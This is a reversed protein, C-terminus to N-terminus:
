PLFVVKLTEGNIAKEVGEEFKSLPLRDTVIKEIQIKGAAILDIAMKFHRPAYITTGILNLANYHIINMDVPPRSRDKPLGAFLLIRGAKAAMEVSQVVLEPATAAIIVVDAGKGNTMKKVQEVLDTKQTDIVADPEFCRALNIKTESIDAMIVREVGNLRALTAHLCGIPGCGIIVVVDGSGVKSRQQANICSSLPEAVTALIPDAGKPVHRINGSKICEPPIAVYEAMGGPWQQAIEKYHLCFEFQEKRCYDCQGCYVVPGVAIIDGKQWLHSCEKGVDVVHGSFEHGIIWPPTIRAHGSRLTRLDSGCLGCGIVKLLFSAPEIQPVPVDKVAYQMPGDFVVAKMTTDVM